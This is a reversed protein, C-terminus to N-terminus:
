DLLGPLPNVVLIGAGRDIRLIVSRVAPLLIEKGDGGQVVLIDNAKNALIEKVRGLTRGSETVAALGILDDHYYRDPPLSARESANICLLAGRMTEATDMDSIEAFCLIVSEGLPLWGTLTLSRGANNHWAKVERLGDFREVNDVLPAAKVHGRIGHPRL